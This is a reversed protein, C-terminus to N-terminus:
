PDSRGFRDTSTIIAEAMGPDSTSHGAGYVIILESGPWARNLEWATVLPAGLDLRGHVLIGPIGVLLHANRLLIGDELWANHLFYHTVIRARAMQFEPQLWRSGPKADPDVSLSAAEWDHWDKAAKTRVTPDPDYLLRYYAQVLDGDRADEPVGACFDAWQEPFMPAMGRYLWDIESRRTMTVGALVISTVRDYHQEAYALALTAGWSSGFLMWRETKLYQRLLEMDVLLHVTTNSSLDTNPDSAHPRSRGCNRQDFLIIRYVNPDFYRRMDTTCGSGPGGHLVVAPKGDPNGCVEWYILNEGGVNLMGYDYPEIKPYIATM